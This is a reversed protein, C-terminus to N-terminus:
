NRKKKIYITAAGVVALLLPAMWVASTQLGALLLAASNIPIIEGGIAAGFQVLVNDIGYGDNESVQSSTITVTRIPGSFTYLDTQGWGNEIPGPCDPRSPYDCNVGGVDIHQFFQTDIVNGGSDKAQVTVKNNGVSFLYFSISSADTPVFTVPNVVSIVIDGNNPGSNSVLINPNSPPGPPTEGSDDLTKLVYNLSSFIAGDTQYQNTIVVGDSQDDFTITSVAFAPLVPTFIMILIMGFFVILFLSKM